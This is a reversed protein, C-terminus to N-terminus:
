ALLRGGPQWAVPGSLNDLTRRVTGSAPDFLITQPCDPGSLALLPGGPPGAHTRSGGAQSRIGVAREGSKHDVEITALRSSDPAWSLSVVAGTVGHTLHRMRHSEHHGTNGDWVQLIGTGSATQGGYALQTGDPSWAQSLWNANSFTGHFSGTKVITVKGSPAPTDHRKAMNILHKQVMGPDDDSVPQGGLASNRCFLWIM